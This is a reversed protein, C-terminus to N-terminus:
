RQAYIPAHHEFVQIDNLTVVLIKSKLESKINIGKVPYSLLSVM